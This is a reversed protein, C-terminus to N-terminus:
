SQNSLNTALQAAKTPDTVRGSGDSLGTSQVGMGAEIGASHADASANRRGGKPVVSSGLDKVQQETLDLVAPDKDSVNRRYVKGGIRVSSGPAVHYPKTPGKEAEAGAAPDDGKAALAARLREVETRSGDFQNKLEEIQESHEAKAATAQDNADSLKGELEAIRANLAAVDSGTAETKETETGTDNTKGADANSPTRTM